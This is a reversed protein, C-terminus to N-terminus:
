GHRFIFLYNDDFYLCTPPKTYKIVCTASTFL